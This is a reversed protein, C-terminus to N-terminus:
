MTRNKLVFRSWEGISKSDAHLSGVMWIMAAVTGCCLLMFRFSCCFCCFCPPRKHNDLVPSPEVALSFVAPGDPAADSLSWDAATQDEEGLAGLLPEPEDTAAYVQLAATRSRPTQRGSYDVGIHLEFDM